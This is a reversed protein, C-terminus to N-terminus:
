VTQRPFFWISRPDAISCLSPCIRPFASSLITTSGVVWTSGAVSVPMAWPHPVVSVADAETYKELQVIRDFLEGGTMLDM